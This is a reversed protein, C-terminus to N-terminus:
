LERTYEQDRQRDHVPQGDRTVYRRRDILRGRDDHSDGNEDVKNGFVDLPEGLVVHIKSNLSFLKSIFDLVQKPRSFEDDEIIYRGKGVDKLHDDILTEAELVLQYNITAPIIFIDPKDSKKKLNHIYADLGMGTLGLKLKKEIAGSRSRTGGPFFLNHYGLELSVGAFRKLVEKYVRARKRRDVTYAGLNHMFFGMLKNAFLNLGAGYLFPPLGLRYIGFGLVLSDLNSAHTPVMILTAKKALNQAQETAGTFLVQDSLGSFGEPMGQMLRLPSLANLLINLSPPLVRTAINYVREDFHGVIENAFKDVIRKLLERQRAPSARLGKKQLKDYFAGQKHALERDKEGEVRQREDYITDFLAHEITDADAGFVEMVRHIVEVLARDKDEARM